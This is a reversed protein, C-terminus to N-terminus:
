YSKSLFFIPLIACGDSPIICPAQLFHKNLERTNEPDEWAACHYLVEMSICSVNLSAPKIGSDPLDEAWELIRAQLIGHVSSGSPSCDM